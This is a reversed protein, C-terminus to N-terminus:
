KRDSKGRTLTGFITTLKDLKQQDDKTLTERRPNAKDLRKRLMERFDPKHTDADSQWESM